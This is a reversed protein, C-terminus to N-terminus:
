RPLAALGELAKGYAAVIARARERRKDHLTGTAVPALAALRQEMWQSHILIYHGSPLTIKVPLRAANPLEIEWLHEQRFEEPQDAGNQILVLDRVARLDETEIGDELVDLLVQAPGPLVDELPQKETDQLWRAATSKSVRFVQALEHANALGQAKMFRRLRNIPPRAEPQGPATEVMEDRDTALM